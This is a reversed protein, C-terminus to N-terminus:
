KSKSIKFIAADNCNLELENSAFSNYYQEAIEWGDKLIFKCKQREDSYNIAVVYRNSEDIIHETTRIYRSDTDVYKNIDCNKVVERYIKDYQPLSNDSFVGPKQSLM